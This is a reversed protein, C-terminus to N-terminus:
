RSDCRTRIDYSHVAVTLAVIWVTFQVFEYVGTWPNFIEEPAGLQVFTLVFAFLTYGSLAAVLAYGAVILLLRPVRRGAVGPVWGPFVLGRPQILAFALIVPLVALGNLVWLYAAGGNAYWRAFREPDAFLPIGAAWVLHLPLFGGAALAAVWGATVARRAPLRERPEAIVDLTNRLEGHIHM